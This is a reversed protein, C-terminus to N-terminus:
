KEAHYTCFSKRVGQNPICLSAAFIARMLVADTAMAVERSRKELRQSIANLAHWQTVVRAPIKGGIEESGFM